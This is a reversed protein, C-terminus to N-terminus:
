GTGLRVTPSLICAPPQQTSIGLEKQEADWEQPSAICPFVQLGKHLQPDLSALAAKTPDARLWLFASSFFGEFFQKPLSSSFASSKTNTEPQAGSEPFSLCKLDMDIILCNNYVTLLTGPESNRCLKHFHDKMSLSVTASINNIPTACMPLVEGGVTLDPSCSVYLGPKLFTDTAPVQNCLVTLHNCFM